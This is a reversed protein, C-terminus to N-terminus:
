NNVQSLSKLFSMCDRKFKKREKFFHYKLSWHLFIFFIVMFSNQLSGDKLGIHKQTLSSIWPLIRDEWTQELAERKQAMPFAKGQQHGSGLDSEKRDNLMVSAM